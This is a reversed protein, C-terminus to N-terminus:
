LENRRAEHWQEVFSRQFSINLHRMCQEPTDYFLHNSIPSFVKQNPSIVCGDKDCVGTADVTKFLQRQEKSGVRFSYPIGTQANVVFSQPKNSPYYRQRKTKASGGAVKDENFLDYLEDTHDNDFASM